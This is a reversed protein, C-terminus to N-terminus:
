KDTHLADGHLADGGPYQYFMYLLSEISNAPDSLKDAFAKPNFFEMPQEQSYTLSMDWIPSLIWRYDPHDYDRQWLAIRIPLRSQRLAWVRARAYSSKDYLYEHDFVVIDESVLPDSIVSSTTDVLESTSWEKSM